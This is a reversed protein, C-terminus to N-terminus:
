CHQIKTNKKKAHRGFTGKLRKRFLHCCVVGILGIVVAVHGRVAGGAAGEVVRGM